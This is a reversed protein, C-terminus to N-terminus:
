NKQRCLIQVGADKLTQLGLWLIVLFQLAAFLAMPMMSSGRFQEQYGAYIVIQLIVPVPFEELVTMGYVASLVGYLCGFSQDMYPLFYGALLGFFLFLRLLRVGEERESCETCAGQGFLWVLITLLGLTLFLGTMAAPDVPQGQVAEKGVIEYINPWHFTDLTYGAGFWIGYSYIFRVGFAALLVLLQEALLRKRQWLVMCAAGLGAYRVNWLLLGALLLTFFWANWKGSTQGFVYLACVCLLAGVAGNGSLITGEAVTTPLLVLIGYTLLARKRSSTWRGALLAALVALYWEALLLTWHPVGTEFPTRLMYGAGTVCVALLGELFDFKLEGIRFERFLLGRLLNDASM